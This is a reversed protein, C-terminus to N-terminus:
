LWRPSFRPTNVATDPASEPARHAHGHDTALLSFLRTVHEGAAESLEKDAVLLVNFQQEHIVPSVGGLNSLVNGGAFPLSKM